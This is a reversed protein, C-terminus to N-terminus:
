VIRDQGLRSVQDQLGDDVAMLAVLTWQGELCVQGDRLTLAPQKMRDSKGEPGCCEKGPVHHGGPAM